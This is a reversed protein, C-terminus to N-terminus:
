RLPTSLVVKRAVIGAREYLNKTLRDGPLAWGELRSCGAVRSHDIAVALLEDGLGLERADAHVYVQRVLAVGDAISLDLFGAVVGDITGVWVPRTEDGVRNAWSATPPVEERLVDAGRHASSEDRGLRELLAVLAEDGVELRRVGTVVSAMDDAATM